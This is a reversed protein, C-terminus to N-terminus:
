GQPHEDDTTAGYGAANFMANLEDISPATGAPMAEPAPDHKTLEALLEAVKEDGHGAHEALLQRLIERPGPEGLDENIKGLAKSIGQGLASALAVTVKGHPADGETSTTMEAMTEYDRQYKIKIEIEFHHSM